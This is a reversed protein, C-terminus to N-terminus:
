PSIVVAASRFLDPAGRHPSTSRRPRAHGRRELEAQVEVVLCDLDEGGSVGLAIPADARIAADIEPTTAIPMATVERPFLTPTCDM